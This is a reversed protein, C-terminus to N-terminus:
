FAYNGVNEKTFVLPGGVVIEGDKLTFSKNKGFAGVTFSGGDKLKGALQNWAAYYTVYGLLEPDWLVFSQVTTGMYKKMLSPVCLGTIKVKGSAGAAELARAAAPLGPCTPAFVGKMNPYSKLLSQTLQFAKEEDDNGYVTTLIKIGPNNKKWYAKAAAIWANQNAATSQASLIAIDGKGGIQKAMEKALSEGVSQLTAQNVFFTRADKAADADYTIVTSGRQAARKMAPALANPDTAAVAIVNTKQAALNNIIGVQGEASADTTGQYIPARGGLEKAATKAGNDVATFYPNSTSKPVIAIKAQKLEAESMGSSDGGGSSSSSSSAGGSSGESKNDSGCAALVALAMVALLTVVFRWLSRGKVQSQRM